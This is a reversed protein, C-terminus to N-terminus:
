GERLFMMVKKVTPGLESVDPDWASIEGNPLETLAVLEGSCTCALNAMKPARPTGAFFYFSVGGEGDDRMKNPKLKMLNLTRLLSDALAYAKETTLSALERDAYIEALKLRAARLWPEAPSREEVSRDIKSPATSAFGQGASVKRSPATSAFGYNLSVEGGLNAFENRYGREYGSASPDLIVAYATFSAALQSPTFLTM